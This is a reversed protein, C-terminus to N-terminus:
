LRNHRRLLARPAERPQNKSLGPLKRRGRAGEEEEEEKERWSKKLTHDPPCSSKSPAVDAFFLKFGIVPVELFLM